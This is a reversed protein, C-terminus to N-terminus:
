QWMIHGSAGGLYLAKAGPFNVADPGNGIM